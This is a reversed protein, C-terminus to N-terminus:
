VMHYQCEKSLHKQLIRYWGAAIVPLYVNVSSSVTLPLPTIFKKQVQSYGTENPSARTEMSVCLQGGLFCFWMLTRSGSHRRNGSYNTRFSDDYLLSLTDLDLHKYM